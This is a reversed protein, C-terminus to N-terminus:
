GQQAKASEHIHAVKDLYDPDRPDIYRAKPPVLYARGHKEPPPVINGSARWRLLTKTSPPDEYNRKAWEKLTVLKSM